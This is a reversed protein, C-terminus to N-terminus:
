EVCICRTVHSRAMSGRATDPATSLTVVGEVGEVGQPLAAMFVLRSSFAALKVEGVDVSPM